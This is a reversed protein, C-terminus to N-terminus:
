MSPPYSGQQMSPAYASPAPVLHSDRSQAGANVAGPAYVLGPQQGAYYMQGMPATPYSMPASQQMMLRREYEKASILEGTDTDKYRTVVGHDDIQARYPM